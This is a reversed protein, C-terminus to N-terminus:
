SKFRVGLFANHDGNELHPLPPKSLSTVPTASATPGADRDSTVLCSPESGTDGLMCWTPSGLCADQRGAVSHLLSQGQLRRAVM